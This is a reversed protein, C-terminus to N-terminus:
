KELEDSYIRARLMEIGGLGLIVNNKFGDSYTTGISGDDCLAIVAVGEIKGEDADKALARLLSAEGSELAKKIDPKRSSIITIKPTSV